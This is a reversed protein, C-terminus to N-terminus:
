PSDGLNEGPKGASKSGESPLLKMVPLKPWLPNLDDQDCYFNYFAEESYTAQPYPPTTTAMGTKISSIKMHPLPSNHEIPGAYEMKSTNPYTSYTHKM